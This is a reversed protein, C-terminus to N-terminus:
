SAAEEGTIEDIAELTLVRSPAPAMGKLSKISNAVPVVEMRDHGKLIFSLKSGPRLGLQRRIEVPITLQGKSTLTAIM